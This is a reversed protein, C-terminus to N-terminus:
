TNFWIYRHDAKGKWRKEFSVCWGYEMNWKSTSLIYTHPRQLTSLETNIHFCCRNKSTQFFVLRWPLISLTPLTTMHSLIDVHFYHFENISSLARVFMRFLTMSSLIADVRSTIQRFSIFVFVCRTYPYHQFQFQITKDCRRALLYHVITRKFTHMTPGFQRLVFLLNLLKLWINFDSRIMLFTYLSILHLLKHYLGYKKRKKHTERLVKRQTKAQKTWKLHKSIWFGRM